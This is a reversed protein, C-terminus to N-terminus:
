ERQTFRNPPQLPNLAKRKGEASQQEAQSQIIAVQQQLMNIM